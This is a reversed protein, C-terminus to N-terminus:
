QSDACDNSEHVPDQFLNLIVLPCLKDPLKETKENYDVETLAKSLKVLLM